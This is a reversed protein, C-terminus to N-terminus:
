HDGEGDFNIESIATDKYKAGPYVELIRFTLTLKEESKGGLKGIEFIQKQYTDALNLKGFLEGNVYFAMQKVRSNEKWAKESKCYGNHIELHTVKLRDGLHDFRIDIEEGIGYDKKGEVWATQLDFDHINAAAYTSVRSATLESSAKYASPGTACYWSCGLVGSYFPGAEFKLEDMLINQEEESRNAFPIDSKLLKQYTAKDKEFQAIGAPSINFGEQIQPELERVQAFNINLFLLLFFSLSLSKM